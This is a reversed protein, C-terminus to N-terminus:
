SAEADRRLVNIWISRSPVFGLGRYTELAALNDRSVHLFPLLDSEVTRAAVQSVLTRALGRKRYDPHTCVASIECAGQTRARQGTMAALRSGAQAADDWLGLYLGLEITREQFPGPRTLRVLELMQPVDHPTLERLAFGDPAPLPPQAQSQVMQVASEGATRIWGAPPELLDSRLVAVVGGLATLAALDRWSEPTDAELAGIPSVGSLYRAAHAGGQAFAAQPGSLAHWFPNELPDASTLPGPM